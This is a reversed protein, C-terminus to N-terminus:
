WVAFPSASIRPCFGIVRASALTITLLTSCPADPSVCYTSAPSCEASISQACLATLLAAPLIVPLHHLLMLCLGLLDIEVEENQRITKEEM